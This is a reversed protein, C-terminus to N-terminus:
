HWLCLQFKYYYYCCFNHKIKYLNRTANKLNYLSHHQSMPQYACFRFRFPFIWVHFLSKWYCFLVLYISVFMEKKNNKKKEIQSRSVSWYKVLGLAWNVNYIKCFFFFLNMTIRLHNEIVAPLDCMHFTCM